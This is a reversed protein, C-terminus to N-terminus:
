KNNLATVGNWNDGPPSSMFDRCRRMMLEAPGDDQLYTLAEDFLGLARPFSRQCYLGLAKEYLDRGRKEEESLSGVPALAEFIKISETRGVVTIYDLARFEVQASAALATPEGVIIKTQYVKNVAVLRSALNVADGMVTYNIRNEAGINGVVMPGSTVGMLASFPPRGLKMFESNLRILAAQQALAAMCAAAAHDPRPMLPAGWFAMISDGDFKDLIGNERSIIPEMIEFYDNLSEVLNEPNLHEALATFGVLDSFFVTMEVREGGRVLLKPNKVIQDALRPNLYLGLAVRSTSAARRSESIRVVQAFIFALGLSSLLLASPIFFHCVFGVWGLVMVIPMMALPLWLRPFPGCRPSLLLPRLAIALLIFNLILASGWGLLLRGASPGSVAGDDSNTVVEDATQGAIKSFKIYVEDVALTMVESSGMFCALLSIIFCGWLVLSLRGRALSTLQKKIKRAQRRYFNLMIIRVAGITQFNKPALPEINGCLRCRM